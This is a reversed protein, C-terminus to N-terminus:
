IVQKLRNTWYLIFHFFLDHTQLPFSWFGTPNLIAVSHPFTLLTRLFPLVNSIIYCGRCAINLANPRWFFKFEMNNCIVLMSLACGQYGNSFFFTHM